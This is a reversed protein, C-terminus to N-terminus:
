EDRLNGINEGNFFVDGSPIHIEVNDAGGLGIADKLNHLARRLEDRTM